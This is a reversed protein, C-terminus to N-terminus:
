SAQGLVWGRRFWLLSLLMLLPVLWYGGDQWREGERVAADSLSQQIRAALADVDRDDVAVEVLGGGAADAARKMAVRDLAPAPPGDTAPIVEPGAAVAFVQVPFGGRDRQQQLDSLEIESVSDAVLLISGPRGSDVLLGNAVRVAEAAADGEVPMIEPSLDGAFTDVIGADRTLPLVLHASGGYAILATAAGPRRELLDHIKHVARELRSPQVDRALMTPAVKLAVVLAAQDEAFPSPERKWSPGALAVAGLLWFIAILHLPRLRRRRQGGGVLLRELLHPEIVRRWARQPSQARRLQWFVLAAPLLLLLWLPRLFHLAALDM